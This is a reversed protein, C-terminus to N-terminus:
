YTSDDPVGEQSIESLPINGYKLETCNTRLKLWSRFIDVERLDFFPGAVENSGNYSYYVLYGNLGDATIIDSINYILTSPRTIFSYLIVLSVIFLLGLVKVLVVRYKKKNIYYDYSSYIHKNM